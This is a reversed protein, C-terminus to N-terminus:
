GYRLTPFNCLWSQSKSHKLACTAIGQESTLPLSDLAKRSVEGKHHSLSHSWEKFISGDVQILIYISM